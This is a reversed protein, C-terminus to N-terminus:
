FLAIIKAKPTIFIHCSIHEKMNVRCGVGGRRQACPGVLLFLFCLCIRICLFSLLFHFASLLLLFLHLLVRKSAPLCSRSYIHIRCNRLYYSVPVHCSIFHARACVCLTIDTCGFGLCRIIYSSQCIHLVKLRCVNKIVKCFSYTKVKWSEIPHSLTDWKKHWFM